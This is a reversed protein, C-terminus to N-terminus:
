RCGDFDEEIDGDDDAIRVLYADPDKIAPHPIGANICQPFLAFFVVVDGVVCSHSFDVGSM